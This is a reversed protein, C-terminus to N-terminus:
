LKQPTTNTATTVTRRRRMGYRIYALWLTPTVIMVASKALERVRADRRMMCGLLLRVGAVPSEALCLLAELTRRHATLRDRLRTTEESPGNRREAIDLDHLKQNAILIQKPLSRVVNDRFSGPAIRELDLPFTMNSEHHRYFVLPHRIWGIKGLLAARLPWVQDEWNMGPQLPGFVDFVERRYATAAGCTSVGSSWFKGAEVTEGHRWGFEYGTITGARDCRYADSTVAFVGDARAGFERVLEACREPVSFDDGAFAVVIEGRAHSVALNLNAGLGGNRPTQVAEIDTRGSSQLFEAIKEFTGDTSCDDSVVVQLPRYTQALVSALAEEIFDRQNFTVVLATVLPGESM